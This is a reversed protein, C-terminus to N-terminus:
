ISVVVQRVCEENDLVKEQYASGRVDEYVFSSVNAEQTGYVTLEPKCEDIWVGVGNGLGCGDGSIYDTTPPIEQCPSLALYRTCSHVCTYFPTGWVRDSGFYLMAGSGIILAVSFVWISRSPRM